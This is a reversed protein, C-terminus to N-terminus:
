SHCIHCELLRPVRLSGVDLLLAEPGRSETRRSNHVSATDRMEIKCAFANSPTLGIVDLACVWVCSPPTHAKSPTFYTPYLRLCPCPSGLLLIHSLHTILVNYKSSIQSVNNSSIQSVHSAEFRLRGRPAARYIRVWHWCWLFIGLFEVCKWWKMEYNEKLPRQSGFVQNM